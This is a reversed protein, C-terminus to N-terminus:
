KANEVAKALADLMAGVDITVSSKLDALDSVRPHNDNAAYTPMNIIEDAPKGICYAEFSALQEFLEAGIPSAGRMNYDDGLEKKSKPAVSTDTTVEGEPTFVVKTQAVDFQIGVIIGADDLTVACITTDVQGAGDYSEGDVISASKSSKTSTVVGLGITDALASVAGLCLVLALVLSLTKKM